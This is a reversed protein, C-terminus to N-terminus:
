SRKRFLDYRHTSGSVAVHSALGPLSYREFLAAALPAPDATKHTNWGLLLVGGPELVAAMARLAEAQRDHTDIGWGFIGNCLISAFAVSGFRQDATTLDCAEHREGNGYEAAAPDIDLTWCAGGQSELLPYYDVTYARCGVWLVSRFGAFVPLIKDRLMCRDPRRAIREAESAPTRYDRTLRALFDLM